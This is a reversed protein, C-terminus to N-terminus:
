ISCPANHCVSAAFSGWVLVLMSQNCGQTPPAPFTQGFKGCQDATRTLAPYGFDFTPQSLWRDGLRQPQFFQGAPLDVRAQQINVHRSRAPNQAHDVMDVMARMARRRRNVVIQWFRFPDDDAVDAFAAHVAHDRVSAGEDIAGIGLPDRCSPAGENPERWRASRARRTARGAPRDGTRWAGGPLRKAETKM